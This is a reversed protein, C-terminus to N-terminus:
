QQVKRLSDTFKFRRAALSGVGARQVTIPDSLHFNKYLCITITVYGRHVTLQELVAFNEAHSVLPAHCNWGLIVLITVLIKPVSSKNLM